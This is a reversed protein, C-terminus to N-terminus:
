REYGINCITSVLPTIINTSDLRGGLGVEVSAYSVKSRFFYDFALMTTTEFFTPNRNIKQLDLIKEM